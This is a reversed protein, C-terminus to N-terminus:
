AFMGRALEMQLTSKVPGDPGEHDWDEPFVHFSLRIENMERISLHGYLSDTLKTSLAHVIARDETGGIETFIVGIVSGDKYWGKLDTDRSAQTIASLLNPLAPVKAAGLLNGADLLMLVFRLGSCETRKRELSLLKMFLEQPLMGFRRSEERKISPLSESRLGAKLGLMKNLV